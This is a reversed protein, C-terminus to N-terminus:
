ETERYYTWVDGEDDPFSFLTYGTTMWLLKVDEVWMTITVYDDPNGELVTEKVIGDLFLKNGTLTYNGGGNLPEYIYEGDDDKMWVSWRYTGDKNFTWKSDYIFGEPVDEISQISWTYIISSSSFDPIFVREVNFHYDSCIIIPDIFIIIVLLLWNKYSKLNEM